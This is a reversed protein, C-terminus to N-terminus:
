FCNLEQQIKLIEYMYKKEIDFVNLINIYIIFSLKLTNLKKIFMKFEKIEKISLLKKKKMTNFNIKLKKFSRPVKCLKFYKMFRISLRFFPEIFSNNKIILRTNHNWFLNDSYKKMILNETEENIYDKNSM